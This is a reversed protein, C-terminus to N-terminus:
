AHLELGRARAERLWVALPDYGPHQGLYRHPYESWPELNSEYFADCSTRVQLLLANLGIRAAM